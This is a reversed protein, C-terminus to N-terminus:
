TVLLLLVVVEARVSCRYTDPGTSLGRCASKPPEATGRGAETQTIGGRSPLPVHWRSEIVLVRRPHDVTVNIFVDCLIMIQM